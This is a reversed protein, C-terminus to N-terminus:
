SKCFIFGFEIVCKFSKVSVFVVRKRLAFDKSALFKLAFMLYIYYMVNVLDFEIMDKVDSKFVDELGIVEMYYLDVVKMLDFVENM